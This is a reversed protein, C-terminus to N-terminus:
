LAMVVGIMHLLSYFMEDNSSLFHVFVLVIVAGSWHRLLM